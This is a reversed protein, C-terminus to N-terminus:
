WQPGGALGSWLQFTGSVTDGRGVHHAEAASGRRKRNGDATPGPNPVQESFYMESRRM